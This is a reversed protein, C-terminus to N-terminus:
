GVTNGTVVSNAITIINNHMNTGIYILLGGGSGGVITNTFASNTITIINHTGTGTYIHLGGGINGGVITNNFASNTITINNHTGTGTHIFLGGGNRVLVTNINSIFVSNTITIINHTDTGTYIYLGFWAVVNNTFESNTITIHTTDSVSTSYIYLAGAITDFSSSYIISNYLRIHHIYLSTINTFTLPIIDQQGCGTITIGYINIISGNNFELGHTNSGCRIIIDTNSHGSEGRLTLNDVNNIVVQVLGKSDLLHEGEMFIFTANSTFYTATDTIYYSLPHCPQPCDDTTSSSVYM